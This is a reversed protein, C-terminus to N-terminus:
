SMLAVALGLCAGRLGNADAHEWDIRAARVQRPVSTHCAPSAPVYAPWSCPCTPMSPCSCAPLSPLRSLRQIWAKLSSAAPGQETWSDSRCAPGSPWRTLARRGWAKAGVAPPLDPGLSEGGVLFGIASAFLAEAGSLRLFAVARGAVGEGVQEDPPFQHSRLAPKCAM